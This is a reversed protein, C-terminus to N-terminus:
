RGSGRCAPVSNDAAANSLLQDRGADVAVGISSTTPLSERMALGVFLSTATQNEYLEVRYSTHKAFSGKSGVAGVAYSRLWLKSSLWECVLVSRHWRLQTCLVGEACLLLAYAAIKTIRVSVYRVLILSGLSVLTSGRVKYWLVLLHPPVIPTSVIKTKPLHGHECTRPRLVRRHLITSNQFTQRRVAFDRRASTAATGVPLFAGGGGLKAPKNGPISSDRLYLGETNACLSIRVGSIAVLTGHLKYSKRQPPVEQCGRDFSATLQHGVPGFTFTRAEFFLCM